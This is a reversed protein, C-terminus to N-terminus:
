PLFLNIFILNVSHKALSDTDAKNMLKDTTYRAKLKEAIKEKGMEGIVKREFM